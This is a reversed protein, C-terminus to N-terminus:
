GNDFHILHPATTVIPDFVAKKYADNWFHWELCTSNYFANMMSARVKADSQEALTDFIDIAEDVAKGFDDGAYTEIWKEFCNNPASQQLIHLGVERYVWFCPLVAAIGVPASEMSCVSLLYSTYSLTAPTLLGTEQFNFIKKFYQHVVEQETILTYAAYNLFSQMYQPPVKSAILAHCKAFDHLYYTDQEIYYAFKDLSLTGRMLEQNFPHQKIADILQASKQWVVTSFKM